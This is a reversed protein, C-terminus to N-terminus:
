HMIFLFSTYRHSRPAPATAATPAQRSTRRRGARSARRLARRMGGVRMAGEGCCVLVGMGLAGNMNKYLVNSVFPNKRTCRLTKLLKRSKESENSNILFVFHKKLYSLSLGLLTGV